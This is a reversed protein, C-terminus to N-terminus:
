QLNRRMGPPLSLCIKTAELSSLGPTTRIVASQLPRLQQIFAGVEMRRHGHSLLALALGKKPQNIECRLQFALYMTINQSQWPIEWACPATSSGLIGAGAQYRSELLSSFFPGEIPSVMRWHLCFRLLSCWCVQSQPQQAGHHSNTEADRQAYNEGGARDFQCKVSNFASSPISLLISHLEETRGVHEEGTSTTCCLCNDRKM